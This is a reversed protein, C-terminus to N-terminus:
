SLASYGAAQESGLQSEEIKEGNLDLGKMLNLYDPLQDQLESELNRGQGM